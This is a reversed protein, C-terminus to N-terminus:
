EDKVCRIACGYRRDDTTVAMEVPMDEASIFLRTASSTSISSMSWYRGFVNRGLLAGDVPNRSGAAPFFVNDGTAIDTFRMGNIGNVSVWERSVKEEDYLSLFETETPLRWGVPTIGMSTNWTNGPARVTNWTTQGLRNQLPDIPTWWDRGGWQAFWGITEPAEAFAGVEINAAAWKVGNIEAFPVPPPSVLFTQKWNDPAIPKNNMDQLDSLDFQYYYDEILYNDGETPFWVELSRDDIWYGEIVDATSNLLAKFKVVGIGTNMSQSFVFLVSESNVSVEEFVSSANELFVLDPNTNTNMSAIRLVGDGRDIVVCDTFKGADDPNDLLM